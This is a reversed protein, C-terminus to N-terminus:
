GADTLRPRLHRMGELLRYEQAFREISEGRQEIRAEDLNGLFRNAERLYTVRNPEVMMLRAATADVAVPDSGFVLVGSARADGRIPGDGEMGVIGDVINFRPMALTANIDLISSQVGAYHLV